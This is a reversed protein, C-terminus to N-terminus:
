TWRARRRVTPAAGDIQQRAPAIAPTSSSHLIRAHARQPSPPSPSAIRATPQNARKVLLLITTLASYATLGVVVCALAMNAGTLAVIAAGSGVAAVVALGAPSGLVGALVSGSAPSPACM